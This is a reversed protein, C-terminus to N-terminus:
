EQIQVVGAVELTHMVEITQTVIPNRSTMLDGIQGPHLTFKPDDIQFPRTGEYVFTVNEFIPDIFHRGVLQVTENVFPRRSGYVIELPTSADWSLHWSAADGGYHRDYINYGVVITALFLVAVALFNPTRIQPTMPKHEWRLYLLWVFGVAMTIYGPVVHDHRFDQGVGIIAVAILQDIWYARTNHTQGVVRDSMSVGQRHSKEQKAATFPNFRSAAFDIILKYRRRAEESLWPVNPDRGFWHDSAHALATKPILPQGCEPCRGLLIAEDPSVDKGDINPM